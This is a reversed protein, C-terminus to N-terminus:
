GHSKVGLLTSIREYENAVSRRTDRPHFLAQHKEVTERTQSQQIRKKQWQWALTNLGSFNFNLLFAWPSFHEKGRARRLAGQWGTAFFNRAWSNQVLFHDALVGVRVYVPRAQVVERATYLSQAQKAIACTEPELWMNFCWRDRVADQSMLRTRARGVLISMGVLLFRSLWLRHSDTIVLFDIDDDIAATGAAVSGTVWISQVWPVLRALARVQMAHKWHLQQDPRPRPKVLGRACWSSWLLDVSGTTYHHSSILFRTLESRTLGQGFVAAYVLSCWGATKLEPDM